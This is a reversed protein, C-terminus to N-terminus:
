IIRYHIFHHKKGPKSVTKLRPSQTQKHSSNDNSNGNGNDNDAGNDNGNRKDIILIGHIHNPMIVFEDLLVFPFHVPIQNLFHNALKGTESLLM